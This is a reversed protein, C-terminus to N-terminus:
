RRDGLAALVREADEAFRAAETPGTPLDGYWARDFLDAAEAFEDAVDPVAARVDARYEGTTRGPVDAVVGGDGLREVLAGFRARMAEKWRGDAELQAALQEWANASRRTEVDVDLPEPPPRRRRHWTGRLRLAVLVVVVVAVVLVALAFLRSGGTAAGPADPNAGLFRELHRAIWDLLRELWSRGKPAFERRALIEDALRRVEEPDNTPPPPASV